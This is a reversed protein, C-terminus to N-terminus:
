GYKVKGLLKSHLKIIGFVMCLNGLFCLLLGIFLLREYELYLSGSAISLVIGSLVLSIGLYILTWYRGGFLVLSQKWTHIISIVVVVIIIGILIHIIQPLYNLLSGIDM